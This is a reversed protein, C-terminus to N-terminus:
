TSASAPARSAGRCRRPSTGARAPTSAGCWSPPGGAPARPTATSPQFQSYTVKQGNLSDTISWSMPTGDATIFALHQEDAFLLGDAGTMAKATGNRAELDVAWRATGDDQIVRLNSFKIRWVGNFLTQNLCGSLATIQQSGGAVTGPTGQGASAQPGTISLTDSATSVQFGAATLASIPVYTQGGVTVVTGPVVRGNVLIRTVGAALASATLLAALGLGRRFSFPRTSRRTNM